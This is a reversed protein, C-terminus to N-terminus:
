ALNCSEFLLCYTSELKLWQGLTLCTPIMAWDFIKKFEWLFPIARLFKYYYYSLYGPKRKFMWSGGKVDIFGYRIQLASVFFYVWCLMYFMQLYPNNFITWSDAPVLGKRTSPVYFYVFVTLALVLAVNLLYKLLVPWEIAADTYHRSGLGRSNYARALWYIMSDQSQLPMSYILRDVITLLLVFLFALVTRASFMNHLGPETQSFSSLDMMKEFFLLVFLLM